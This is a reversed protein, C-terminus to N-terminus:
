CQYRKGKPATKEREKGTEVCFEFYLLRLLCGVGLLPWDYFYTFQEDTRENMAFFHTYFAFSIVSTFELNSPRGINM